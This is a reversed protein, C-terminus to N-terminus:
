CDRGCHAHSSDYHLRGEIRLLSCTCWLIQQYFHLRGVLLVKIVQRQRSDQHIRGLAAIVGDAQCRQAPQAGEHHVGLPLQQRQIGGDQLRDQRGQRGASWFDELYDVTIGCSAQSGIM